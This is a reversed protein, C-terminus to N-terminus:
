TEGTLIAPIKEVKKFVINCEKELLDKIMQEEGVSLERDFLVVLGESDWKEVYFKSESPFLGQLKEYITKPKIEIRTKM